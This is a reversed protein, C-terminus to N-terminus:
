TQKGYTHGLSNLRLSSLFDGVSEERGVKSNRNVYCTDGLEMTSAEIMKTVNELQHDIPSQCQASKREVSSKSSNQIEVTVEMLEELSLEKKIKRTSPKLFEFESSRLFEKAAQFTVLGYSYKDISPIEWCFNQIYYLNTALYQPRAQVIVSVLLPILDDSTLKPVDKKYSVPHYTELLFQEIDQNLLELTTMLCNLKEVPSFRSNLSALEVVASPTQCCFSEKVGLQDPTINGEYLSLLKQNLLNDEEYCYKKIAPFAKDHIHCLIYNEVVASLETSSYKNFSEAKFSKFFEEVTWRSLSHLKVAADPLYEPLIMYSTNFVNIKKDLVRLVKSCETISQLFLTCENLSLLLNKGGNIISTCSEDKLRTSGSLPRQIILIKYQKYDDNYGIEEM